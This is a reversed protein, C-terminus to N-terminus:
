GRLAGWFCRCRSWRWGARLSGACGARGRRVRGLMRCRASGAGSCRWRSSWRAFVLLRAAIEAPSPAPLLVLGFILAKPNLATTVFIRGAGIAFGEAGAAASCWLRVALVMVWLAAALKLLLAAGPARAMLGAGGGAGAACGHASLGGPEAPVLRLVRALGHSAGAVAMLTNTPGPALLLALVALSFAALTM